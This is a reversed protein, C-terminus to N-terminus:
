PASHWEVIAILERAHAESQASTAIFLGQASLSKVATEVEEAPLTIHLNKGSDQVLRLTDIGIRWRVM